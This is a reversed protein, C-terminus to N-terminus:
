IVADKLAKLASFHPVKKEAIQIEAGTSPNRGTRASRTNVSLKGIGPLTVEDGSKLAKHTEVALAELVFKIAIKSVGHNNPSAAIANVLDAQNM